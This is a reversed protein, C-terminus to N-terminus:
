INVYLWFINSHQNGAVAEETVRAHQEVMDEKARIDALALSLKGALGDGNDSYDSGADKQPSM